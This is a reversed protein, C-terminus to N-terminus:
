QQLKAPILAIAGMRIPNVELCTEVIETLKFILRSQVGQSFWFFLQPYKKLTSVSRNLTM